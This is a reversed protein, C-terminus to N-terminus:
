ILRGSPRHQLDTLPASSAHTSIAGQARAQLGSWATQATTAPQGVWWFRAANDSLQSCPRLRVTAYQSSGDVSRVGTLSIGGGHRGATNGAVLAIAPTYQTTAAATRLWPLPGMTCAGAAPRYAEPSGVLLTGHLASSIALGGGDQSGLCALM